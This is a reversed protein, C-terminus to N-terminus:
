SVCLSDETVISVHSRLKGVVVDQEQWRYQVSYMKPNEDTLINDWM